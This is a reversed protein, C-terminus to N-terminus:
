RKWLWWALGALLVLPVIVVLFVLGMSHPQQCSLGAAEKAKVDLSVQLYWMGDAHPLIDGRQTGWQEQKGQMWTVWVPKPYFGSVHCALWLHGSRPRPGASLWAKPRM